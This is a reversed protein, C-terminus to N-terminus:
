GAPPAAPDVVVVVPKIYQPHILKNQTCWNQHGEYVAKLLDQAMEVAQQGNEQVDATIWLFMPEALEQDTGPEKFGSGKGRLHVLCSYQQRLHELHSDGDGKVRQATPFMPHLEEAKAVVKWTFKLGRLGVGAPRTDPAAGAPPTAGPKALAPPETSAPTPPALPAAPAQPAAGPSPAAASPAAPTAPALPASPAAPATAAVPAAMHAQVAALPQSAVAMAPPTFPLMRLQEPGGPLVLLTGVAGDLSCQFGHLQRQADSADIRDSFHVVGIERPGDRLVQVATVQGWRAFTDRLDVESLQYRFPLHDIAVSVMGGPQM